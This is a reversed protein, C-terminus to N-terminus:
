TIYKIINIRLKRYYQFFLDFYLEIGKIIETVSILETVYQAILRSITQLVHKSDTSSNPKSIILLVTQLLKRYEQGIDHGAQLTRERL